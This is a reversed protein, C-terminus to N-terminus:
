PQPILQTNEAVASDDGATQVVVSVNGEAIGQGLIKGFNEGRGVGLGNSVAEPVAGSGIGQAAAAAKGSPKLREAPGANRENWITTEATGVAGSEACDTWFEKAGHVPLLMQIMSPKEFKPESPTLIQEWKPDVVKQRKRDEELQERLYQPLM